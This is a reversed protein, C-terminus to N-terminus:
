RRFLFFFFVGYRVHSFLNGAISSIPLLFASTRRQIEAARCSINKRNCMWVVEAAPGQLSMFGCRSMELYERCVYLRLFIRKYNRRQIKVRAITVFHLIRTYDEPHKKFVTGVRRCRRVLQTDTGHKSNLIFTKNAFHKTFRVVLFTSAPFFIVHYCRM